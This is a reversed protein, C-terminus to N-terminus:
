PTTVDLQFVSLAAPGAVSIATELETLNVPKASSLSVRLASPAVFFTTLTEFVEAAKEAGHSVSILPVVRMALSQAVANVDGGARMAQTTIFTKLAGEDKYGASISSLAADAFLAQYEADMTQMHQRAAEPDTQAPLALLADLNKQRIDQIAALSPLGSADVNLDIAGIKHMRLQLPKLRFTKAGDDLTFNVRLDLAIRDLGLVMTLVRAGDNATEPVAFSLESITFDGATVMMDTMVVDKAQLAAITFDLKKDTADSPELALRLNELEMLGIHRPSLNKAVGHAIAYNVKIPPIPPALPDSGHGTVTLVLKADDIEIADSSLEIADHANLAPSMLAAFDTNKVTVHTIAGHGSSTITADGKPSPFVFTNNVTYTGDRADMAAVRTEGFLMGRVGSLTVAGFRQTLTGSLSVTEPLKGYAKAIEGVNLTAEAGRLVVKDGILDVIVEGPAASEIFPSLRANVFTLEIASQIKTNAYVIGGIGLIVIGALGFVAAALGKNM